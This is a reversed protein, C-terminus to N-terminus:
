SVSEAYVEIIDLDHVLENDEAGFLYGIYARDM